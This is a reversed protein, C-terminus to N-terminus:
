EDTERQARTFNLFVQELTTQSISYDEVNYEEKARELIGFLKSWKEETKLQYHIYSQHEDKLLSGPFMEEIFNKLSDTNSRIGGLFYFLLNPYWFEKFLKDRPMATKVEASQAPSTKSDTRQRVHDSIQYRLKHSEAEKKQPPYLNCIKIKKQNCQQFAARNLLNLINKTRKHM